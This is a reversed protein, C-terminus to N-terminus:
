APSDFYRAEVLHGKLWRAFAGRDIVGSAVDLM